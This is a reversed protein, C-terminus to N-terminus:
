LGLDNLLELVALRLEVTDNNNKILYDARDAFFEDTHQSSMRRVALEASIHDRDIIRRLRIEPDATVVVIKECLKDAGSEFLTPADLFILKAGRERARMIDLEAEEVIYPFIIRNLTKLKEKDSFVIEALRRRNLEGQSDIILPSFEVALDVLCRNGKSAVRRSLQDCDIIEVGQWERLMRCVTSKGSGTPGTLGVIM